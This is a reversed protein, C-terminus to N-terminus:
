EMPADPISEEHNAFGCHSCDVYAFDGAANCLLSHVADAGCSPCSSSTTFTAASM